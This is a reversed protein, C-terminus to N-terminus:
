RKLKKIEGFAMKMESFNVGLFIIGWVAFSAGLLFFSQLRSFDAYNWLVFEYVM